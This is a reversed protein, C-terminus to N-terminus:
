KATIQSSIYLLKELFNVWTYKAAECYPIYVSITVIQIM